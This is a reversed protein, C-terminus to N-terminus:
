VALLVDERRSLRVHLRDDLLVLLTQDGVTLAVVLDDVDPGLGRVADRLIEDLVDRRVLEHVGLRAVGHLDRAEVGDEHHGVRASATAVPLDTLEGAHAAQHRLRAALDDLRRDGRVEALTQRNELVEDRRVTRTLAERVGRELRRVRTIQGTTEDVHRLVRDDGLVVALREVADPHRLEFLAALDHRREPLADETADRELVDLIRDG